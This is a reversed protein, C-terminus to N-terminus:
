ILMCLVPKVKLHLLKVTGIEFMEKVYSNRLGTKAYNFKTIHLFFINSYSYIKDLFKGCM